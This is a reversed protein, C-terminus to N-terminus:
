NPTCVIDPTGYVAKLGLLITFGMYTFMHYPEQDSHSSTSASNFNSKVKAKSYAMPLALSFL